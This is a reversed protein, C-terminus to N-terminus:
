VLGLKAATVTSLWSDGIKVLETRGDSGGLKVEYGRKRLGELEPPVAAAFARALDRWGTMDNGYIQKELAVRLVDPSEERAWQYMTPVDEAAVGLRTLFGTAVNTYAEVAMEVVKEAEEREAGTRRMFGNVMAESDLEGAAAAIGAAALGDVAAQDYPAVAADLEAVIEAPLAADTEETTGNTIGRLGGPRTNTEPDSLEAVEASGRAKGLSDGVLYRGSVPDREIGAAGSQWLDYLRAEMGNFLVLTSDTLDRTPRRTIPDRATLHWPTSDVTPTVPQGNRLEIRMAGGDLHQVGEAADAPPAPPTLDPQIHFPNHQYSTFNSM